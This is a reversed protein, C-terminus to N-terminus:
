SPSQAKQVLQARKTSRRMGVVASTTGHCHTSRSANPTLWASASSATIQIGGDPGVAAPGMAMARSSMSAPDYQRGSPPSSITGGIRQNAQGM